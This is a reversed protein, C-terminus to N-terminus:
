RLLKCYAFFEMESFVFERLLFQLIAEFSFDVLGQTELVETCM